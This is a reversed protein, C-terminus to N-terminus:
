CNAHSHIAPLFLMSRERGRRRGAIHWARAAHLKVRDSLPLRRRVVDYPLGETLSHDLYDRVLGHMERLAAAETAGTGTIDFEVCIAFWSSDRKQTFVASEILEPWGSPAGVGDGASTDVDNM